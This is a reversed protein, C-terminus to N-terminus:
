VCVVLIPMKAANKAEQKPKIAYWFFAFILGAVIMSFGTWM